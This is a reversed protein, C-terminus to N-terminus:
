DLLAKIQDIIENEESSREKQPGAAKEKLRKYDDSVIPGNTTLHQMVGTMVLPKLVNWDWDDEKTVSVYDKALFVQKVGTVTMLRMALPSYKEAEELSTVELTGDEMVQRDPLFKLVDPNPTSETEIFM